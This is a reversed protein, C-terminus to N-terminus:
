LFNAKGESAVMIMMIAQKAIYTQEFYRKEADKDRSQAAGKMLFETEEQERILRKKRVDLARHILDDLLDISPRTQREYRKWIDQFEGSLRNNVKNHVSVEEETLLQDLEAQLAADLMQRVYDLPEYDDQDLAEQFIDLIARYDGEVFDAVSLDGLWNGSLRPNKSGLERFRRNVQSIMEPNNLLMRLCYAETARSAHRMKVQPPMPKRLPPLFEADEADYSDLAEYDPPPALNEFDMPPPMESSSAVGDYDPLPPADAYNPMPPMEDYTRSLAEESTPANNRHADKYRTRQAQRAQEMRQQEQAWSLLDPEPIRLRLALKQLNEQKYLNNESATLIPLVRKAVAQRAPVSANEPLDATELDIVFDAVPVARRIYEPWVEPTERLVDDPDKAGDMQLVRIDIALKGSYDAQLAERAVELSRRTANQGAEDSDLAMVISNAYRPAVLKLQTETMATGMQAVVNTYGAQHAQIVDMYGEVIVVEGSDRITRKAKDLGFLLHSKDFVPTQPSNLYKPNDDPDLARAGFGVTRGRENLIPIMLRNRFRDYVRGKNSRNALGVEIIDDESYELGLLSEVMSTWNPPAFGIQWREITELSFGRKEQAYQLVVQAAADNSLLHEHYYKAATALLGRLQEHHEDQAKQQPSRQRVEVGALQGLERLAESFSWGNIKQAFSFIDGGEACAGFCRWSQTDPNVVFSPTNEDHFPCCAKHYRGARKLDPVHTQVYQVIDLRDKIERTVSM